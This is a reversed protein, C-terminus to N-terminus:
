RVRIAVDDIFVPYPGPNSVTVVIKERLNIMLDSEYRISLSQWENGSNESFAAKGLFQNSWYLSLGANGSSTFRNDTLYKVSLTIEKGEFNLNDNGNITLLETSQIYEPVMASHTGSFAVSDTMERFYLLDSEYDNLYTFTTNGSFPIGAQQTLNRYDYWSWTSGPFCDGFAWSMRLSFFTVILMLALVGSRLWRMKSSFLKELLFALPFCFFAYFEIFSRQGYSCGFYWCHWAASIYLIFLFLFLMLIGNTVKNRIMIFIGAIAALILPSYPILGNLPALLVEFIRPHLANSFSEDGYSYVFLEGSRYYWYTIQPFFVLLFTSVAVLIREPKVFLLLRAKIDARSRCNWFLLVTLLVINTPRILVALWMAIFMALLITFRQKRLYKDLFFWFVAFCFFSYVHSMGAEDIVYYFLNTGATIFFVAAIIASRAFYNRLLLFLLLLSLCFYFAGSINIMKYFIPEFGTTPKGTIKCYFHTCAFFPLQLLAVGSTYKFFFSRKVKEAEFGGGALQNVNEPTNEPDFGYYFFAPLYGYYGAKDSWIQSRWSGPEFNRHRYIGIWSIGAWVAFFIAVYTLKM